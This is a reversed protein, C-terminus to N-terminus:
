CVSQDTWAPYVAWGEPAPTGRDHREARASNISMRNVPKSSVRRYDASSTPTVFNRPATRYVSSPTSVRTAARRPGTLLDRRHGGAQTPLRLAKNPRRPRASRCPRSASVVAGGGWCCCPLGAQADCTSSSATPIRGYLSVLAAPPRPADYPAEYRRALIPQRTHSGSARELVRHRRIIKSDRVGHSRTRRVVRRRHRTRSRRRRSPRTAPTPGPRRRAPRLRTPAPARM